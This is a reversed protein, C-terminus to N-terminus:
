VASMKNYMHGYLLPKLKGQTGWREGSWCECCGTIPPTIQNQILRRNRNKFNESGSFSYNRNKPVFGSNIFERNRTNWFCSRVPVKWSLVPFPRNSLSGQAVVERAPRAGTSPPNGLAVHRKREREPNLGTTDHKRTLLATLRCM